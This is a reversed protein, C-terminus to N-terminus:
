PCVFLSVLGRGLGPEAHAPHGISGVVKAGLHIGAFGSTRSDECFRPHWRLLERSNHSTCEAKLLMWRQEFFICGPKSGVGHSSLTTEVEGLAMTGM